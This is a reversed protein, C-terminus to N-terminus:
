ILVAVRSFVVDWCTNCAFFMSLSYMIIIHAYGWLYCVSSYRSSCREVYGALWNTHMELEEAYRTYRLWRRVRAHGTM